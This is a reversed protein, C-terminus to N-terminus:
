NCDTSHRSPCYPWCIFGKKYFCRLETLNNNGDFYNLERTLPPGSPITPLSILIYSFYKSLLMASLILAFMWYTQLCVLLLATHIEQVYCKLIVFFLSLDSEPSSSLSFSATLACRFPNVFLWSWLRLSYTHSWLNTHLDCWVLSFQFHSLGSPCKLDGPVVNVCPYFCSWVLLFCHVPLLYIKCCCFCM